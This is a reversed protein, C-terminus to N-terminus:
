EKGAGQPNAARSEPVYKIPEYSGSPYYHQYKGAIASDVIGKATKWPDSGYEEYKGPANIGQIDPIWDESLIRDPNGYRSALARVEASDLSTMHGRDLLTVWKDSNRMHVRYTTFYTHTHFGHDKPLNHKATFDLWTKSEVPADPDHWLRIGLGWHIVGSRMREPGLSGLNMQAPNRFYKPHTGFAIEYLYWFGPHKHFPYTLENIQPYKLFERLVDGYVGGGEVQTIYGNTFHVKWRPFFGSHGNTGAVVGNILAMPERPLWSKQFAPYDVLSYGFRGTAQNPFMYLHGRQYAGEVWRQAMEQTVDCAVNTGEPDTAEIRDVYALPEITEEEVLQWVDGPFSGVDSMVEWRNDATFVGLFKSELPHLARRLGTGGGKGWFVGKVEPHKGLYARIAKGVNDRDLKDKVQKLRDSLDRNKPFLQDYLDPRRAKLWQKAAEPDPFQNEIWGAAEMYGQESTYTQRAKRFAAADEKSVGVLEYDRLFNVKVGREQLGKQIADLIMEEADATVVIAVTEGPDVVGLGSGQFGSKNRVLNRVRPLVDDVSQPAKLYSPFRPEPYKPEEAQKQEKRTCGSLFVVACLALLIEIAIWRRKM